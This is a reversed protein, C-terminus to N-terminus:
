FEVLYDKIANNERPFSIKFYRKTNEWSESMCILHFFNQLLMQYKRLKWVYLNLM